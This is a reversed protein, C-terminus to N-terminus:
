SAEIWLADPFLVRLAYKEEENLVKGDSVIEPSTLQIPQPYWRELLVALFDGWGDEDLSYVGDAGSATLYHRHASEISATFVVLQCIPNHVSIIRRYAKVIEILEPLEKGKGSLLAFDFDSHTRLYEEIVKKEEIRVAQFSQALQGPDEGCIFSELHKDADDVLLIRFDVQSPLATFIRALSM